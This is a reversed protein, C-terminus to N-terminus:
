EGWVSRLFGSARITQMYAPELVTESTLGGYTSPDIAKLAELITEAGERDPSIDRALRQSYFAYADAVAPETPELELHRAMIAMSEDRNALDSSM